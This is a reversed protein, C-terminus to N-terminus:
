RAWDPYNRKFRAGLRKHWLKRSHQASLAALERDGSMIAEIELLKAARWQGVFAGHMENGADPEPTEFRRLSFAVNIDFILRIYSSNALEFVSTQSEMELNRVQDFTADDKISAIKKRLSKFREEVQDRNSGAAKKVAEVWLASAVTTIDQDEMEMTELYSAVTQEITAANPRSGFYGGNIGRRVRLLGERELLRAVQRVTSRSCGLEAILADENGIFDGEERELVISRLKQVITDIATRSAPKRM